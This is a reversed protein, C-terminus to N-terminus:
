VPRTRNAIKRIDKACCGGLSSISIRALILLQAYETDRELVYAIQMNLNTLKKNKM